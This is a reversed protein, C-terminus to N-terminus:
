LTVHVRVKLFNKQTDRVLFYGRGAAIGTVTFTTDKTGKDPSISILGKFANTVKFNGSYGKENFKCDVIGAVVIHIRKGCTSTINEKKDPLVFAAGANSPLVYGQSGSSGGGCATIGAVCFVLAAPLRFIQFKLHM